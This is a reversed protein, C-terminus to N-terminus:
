DGVSTALRAIELQGTESVQLAQSENIV